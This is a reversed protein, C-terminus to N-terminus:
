TTSDDIALLDEVLFFFLRILNDTTYACISGSFIKCVLTKSM